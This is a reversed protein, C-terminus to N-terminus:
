KRENELQRTLDRVDANGPDSAHARRLYRLARDIDNSRLAVVASLALASAHTPALDRARELHRVAAAIDQRRLSWRAAQVRASVYNPDRALAREAFQM